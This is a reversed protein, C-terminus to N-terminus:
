ITPIQLRSSQEEGLHKDYDKGKSGLFHPTRPYKIFDGHSTGM